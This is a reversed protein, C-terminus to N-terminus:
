KRTLRYASRPWGLDSGSLANRTSNPCRQRRGALMEYHIAYKGNEDLTVKQGCM